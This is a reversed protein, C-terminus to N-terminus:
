FYIQQQAVSSGTIEAYVFRFSFHIPKIKGRLQQHAEPYGPTGDSLAGTPPYRPWQQMGHIM